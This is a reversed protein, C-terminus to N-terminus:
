PLAEGGQGETSIAGEQQCAAAGLIDAHIVNLLLDHQPAELYVATSDHKSQGVCLKVHKDHPM